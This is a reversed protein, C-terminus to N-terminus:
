PRVVSRTLVALGLPVWSALLAVLAVPSFASFGPIALIGVPIILGWLGFVLIAVEPISLLYAFMLLTCVVVTLRAVLPFAPFVATFVFFPYLLFTSALLMFSEDAPFLRGPHIGEHANANRRAAWSRTTEWVNWSWDVNPGDTGGAAAQRRASPSQNPARGRAAGTAAGPSSQSQWSPGTSGRSPGTSGPSHGTANGGLDAAWPGADGPGRGRDSTGTDGPDGGRDSTRADSATGHSRGRTRRRRHGRENQSGDPSDWGRSRAERASWGGASGRESSADGPRSASPGDRSGDRQGTSADRETSGTGPSADRETSGTGPSADRDTGRTSSGSGVDPGSTYAHHGVRDYRAREDADTLVRKAENLRKTRESADVDDNVDPHVQKIAERYAAEIDGTSADESVGLLDYFTETM